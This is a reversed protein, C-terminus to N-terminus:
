LNIKIQGNVMVFKINMNPDTAIIDAFKGEKISGTYKDIQLAKAPNLSAMNLAQLVNQGSHAYTNYVAKSLSLTSGALAGEFTRAISNEVKVPLEGLTYEGDKLGGAMMCDTVLVTKDKPKANMLIKVSAPHVHITDCIIEAYLEDKAMAAGLLGPERSKLQTMANYAHIVIKAGSEFAKLAEEYTAASHGIRIIIGEQSLREILKMAGKKEPAIAFSVIGKCEKILAYIEEENIDRISKEPHAGKYSENIYPGELFPGTIKAGDVGKEMAENIAKIAKVTHPLSATVTTPCFSTVGEKLKFLSIQNLSHYSADMTDYGNGGHVHIDILGPMLRLDGLDIVEGSDTSPAIEAIIGKENVAISSNYLIQNELYIESAKLTYLMFDGKIICQKHIARNM